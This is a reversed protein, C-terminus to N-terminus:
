SRISFFILKKQNFFALCKKWLRWLPGKLDPLFKRELGVFFCGARKSMDKQSDLVPIRIHIWDKDSLRIFLM